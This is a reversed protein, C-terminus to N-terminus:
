IGTGNMELTEDFAFPFRTKRQHCNLQLFTVTLVLWLFFSTQKAFVCIVGGLVNRNDPIALSRLSVMIM